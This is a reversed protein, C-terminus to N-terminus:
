EPVYKTDKGYCIQLTARIFYASTDVFRQWDEAKHPYNGSDRWDCLGNGVGAEVRSGTGLWLNSYAANDAWEYRKRARDLLVPDHRAMGAKWELAALQLGPGPYLYANEPRPSFYSHWYLGYYRWDAPTDTQATMRIGQGGNTWWDSIQRTLPDAPSLLDAEFPLFLLQDVSDGYTPLYSHRSDRYKFFGRGTRTDKMERIGATILAAFADYDYSPKLNAIKAWRSLCRLADAAYVSDSVWLDPSTRSGSVLHYQPNFMRRLYSGAPEAVAWAERRWRAAEAAHGTAGLYESYKWMAVVMVGTAGTSYSEDRSWHGTKEYWVRQAMSGYDGDRRDVDWGQRNQLLWLQFFRSLVADYRATDAHSTRLQRAAAMLGIAAHASESPRVWDPGSHDIRIDNLAGYGALDPTTGGHNWAYETYSSDCIYNSERQLADEGWGAHAANPLCLLFLLLMLRSHNMDSYLVRM